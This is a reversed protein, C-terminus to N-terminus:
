RKARLSDFMIGSLQGLPIALIGVVATWVQHAQAFLLVAATALLATVVLQLLLDFRM